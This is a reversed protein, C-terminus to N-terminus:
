SFDVKGSELVRQIEQSTPAIDMLGIRKVAVAGAACGCRIAEKLDKGQILAAALAGGFTDGAGTPDTEEAPFAPVFCKERGWFGWAGKGGDKLVVTKGNAALMECTVNEDESGETFLSAEGRSPLFIDAREFVSKCRALYEGKEIIDSRYNPDFSVITNQPIYEMIKKHLEAISSSVSLAFGSVHLWRIENLLEPHFDSLGLGAAASSPLTFLFRRSGDSFNAVLSMGTSRLQDTRVWTTDVGNRRMCDLFCRGFDDNGVVGAYGGKVGLRVAANVLIGPDGAPFPGKFEGEQYLPQDLGKRIMEVM